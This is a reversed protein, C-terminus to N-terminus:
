STFSNFSRIQPPLTLCWTVDYHDSGIWWEFIYVFESMKTWNKRQFEPTCHNRFPRVWRWGNFVHFILNESFNSIWSPSFVFCKSPPLFWSFLLYPDTNETIYKILEPNRFGNLNHSTWYTCVIHISVMM